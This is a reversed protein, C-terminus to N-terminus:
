LYILLLEHSERMPQCYCLKEWIQCFFCKRFIETEWSKELNCSKSMIKVNNQVTKNLNKQETCHKVLTYVSHFGNVLTAILHLM